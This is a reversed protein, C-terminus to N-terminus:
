YTEETVAGMTKFERLFNNIKDEVKRTYQEIPLNIPKFKTTASLVKVM